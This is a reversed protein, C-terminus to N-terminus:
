RSDRAAGKLIKERDDTYIEIYGHDSLSMSMKSVADFLRSDTSRLRRCMVTPRGSSSSLHNSM